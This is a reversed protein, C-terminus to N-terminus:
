DIVILSVYNDHHRRQLVRSIIIYKWQQRTFLQSDGVEEQWKKMWQSKLLFDIKKKEKFNLTSEPQIIICITSFGEYNVSKM